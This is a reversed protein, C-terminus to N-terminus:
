ARWTWRACLWAAASDQGTEATAPAADAAALRLAWELKGRVRERLEQAAADTFTTVVIQRPSLMRELVLRLYLAAITWTKGAGASAEILSRGAPVLPLARWDAPPSTPASM